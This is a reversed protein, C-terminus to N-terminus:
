AALGLLIKVNSITANEDYGADIVVQHDLTRKYAGHLRAPDITSKM